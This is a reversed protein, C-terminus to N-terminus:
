SEFTLSAAGSRARQKMVIGELIGDSGFTGTFQTPEVAGPLRFSVTFLGPPCLFQSMMNFVRQGRLVRAEGTTTSGKITVKGDGEVECKFDVEEKKVGPLATRFLYADDSVGIDVLGILPGAQRAAATGTFVIAPKAANVVNNWQEVTLLTPLLMMAPGVMTKPTAPAREALPAVILPAPLFDMQGKKKRKKRVGLGDLFTGGPQGTEQGIDFRAQREEDRDSRLGHQFGRAEDREVSLEMLGSLRKFREVDEMKMTPLYPDDIFVLNEVVKYTGKYRAHRHLHPPFFSPFQRDDELTEKVPPALHGQLFKYLSQLKVKASPHSNRLLYYYVSEIESLKCVSGGLMESTYPPLQEAERQLASKRPLEDRVDPGFYTGLIFVLLFRQDNTSAGVRPKSLSAEQVFSNQMLEVQFDGEM